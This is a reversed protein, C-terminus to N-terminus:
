RIRDVILVWAVSGMIFTSILPGLATGIHRTDLKRGKREIIQFDPTITISPRRERRLLLPPLHLGVVALMTWALPRCAYMEIAVVIWLTGFLAAFAAVGAAFLGLRINFIKM